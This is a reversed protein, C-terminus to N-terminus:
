AESALPLTVRFRCGVVASVAALSGGQAEALARSIYLGLGTGRTGTAASGRQFKEFVQQLEDEPLGPGEDVVDIVVNGDVQRAVVRIPGDSYKVANSILNVLIQELRERDATARPLDGEAGVIIERQHTFLPVVNDIVDVVNVPELDLTLPREAEIRSFDLFQNVLSRLRRAQRAITAYIPRRDAIPLTPDENLSDAIGVIVSLPTHMDHSMGALLEDRFRAAEQRAHAEYLSAKEVTMVALAGLQEVIAADEQTFPRGSAPHAVLVLGMEHGDQSVLQTALLGGPMDVPGMEAAVQEESLVVHDEDEGLLETLWVPPPVLGVAVDELSEDITAAILESGTTEELAIIALRARVLEAVSDALHQLAEGASAPENAGIAARALGQLQMLRRELKDGLEVKGLALEAASALQRFMARDDADFAGARSTARLRGVVRGDNTTIDTVLAGSTDEDWPTAPDLVVADVGVARAGFRAITAAVDDFSAAANLEAMADALADLREALGTPSPEVQM